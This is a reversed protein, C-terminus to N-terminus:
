QRSGMAALMRQRMADLEVAEEKEKELEANFAEVDLSSEIATYVLQQLEKPHLAELEWTHAGHNDLYGRARSSTTKVTQNEPLNHKKIQEMTLAAKITGIATYHVRFDRHLIREVTRCIDEGEPDHDTVAILRTRKKGQKRALEIRKYIDAVTSFSPYGRLITLPVTFQSAIPKLTSLVTNKEAIIEIHLPQSQMLDRWYTRLLNEQQQRVYDGASYFCGVQYTERTHDIMASPDIMGGARLRTVLDSLDQYSQRDNRYTSDPKKSHRLPPNNLLQYHLQRLTVPLFGSLDRLTQLVAVTMEQKADSIERRKEGSSNEYADLPEMWVDDLKKARASYLAAAAEETSKLVVSEAAIEALTKERQTNAEVLLKNFKETGIKVGRRVICPLTKLGAVQGAQRRRHGSIIRFDESVTLPTLIGNKKISEVLNELGDEAGPERYIDSNIPAPIIKSISVQRVLGAKM